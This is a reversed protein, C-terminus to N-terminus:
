DPGLAQAVPQRRRLYYVMMGGQYVLSVVALVAVTITNLLRFYEEVSMGWQQASLTALDGLGAPLPPMEFHALRLGCYSWIVGLLFPQSGVLWDMGRPEGARLLGVGHMEVAGAGAALLGIVAFPVDHAAAAMVAFLTGLVLAGMGDFKALRLM